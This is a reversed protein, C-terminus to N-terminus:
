GIFLERREKAYLPFYMLIHQVSELVGCNNCNGDRHKGILVLGSALRCHGLMLRTSKIEDIRPMSINNVPKVSAQINHLKTGRIDGDWGQQWIQNLRESIISCCEM